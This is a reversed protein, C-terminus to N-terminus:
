SYEKHQFMEINEWDCYVLETEIGAAKLKKQIATAYKTAKDESRNKHVMLYVKEAKEIIAPIM